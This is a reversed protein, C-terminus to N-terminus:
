TKKFFGFHGIEKQAYNIPTLEQFDIRESSKIHQWFMPITQSNSLPDDSAWYVHIPFPLNQFYGIPVTKGYYKKSFFYDPERCWARWDRVVRANLNEMFGFPKSKVYKTLFISLPTFINFFFWAKYRYPVHMKPVYGVSVAFCVLAKIKLCNSM